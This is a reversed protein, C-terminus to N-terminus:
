RGAHLFDASARTMAASGAKFQKAGALLDSADGKDIYGAAAIFHQLAAALDTDEGVVCAPPMESLLVKSDQAAANAHSQLAAVSAGSSGTKSLDAILKQFRAWAPGSEWNLLQVACPVSTAAPSASATARGGVSAGCASLALIAIASALGVAINRM